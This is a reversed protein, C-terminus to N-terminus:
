QAEHMAARRCEVRGIRIALAKGTARTGLRGGVFRTAEGSRIAEAIAPM